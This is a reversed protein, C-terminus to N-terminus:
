HGSRSTEDVGARRSAPVEGFGNMILDLAVHAVGKQVSEATQFEVFVFDRDFADQASPAISAFDLRPKEIAQGFGVALGRMLETLPNTERRRPRLHPLWIRM